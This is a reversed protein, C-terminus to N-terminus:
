KAAYNLSGVIQYFIKTSEDIGEKPPYFSGGIGWQKNGATFYIAISRDLVWFQPEADPRERGYVFQYGAFKQSGVTFPPGTKPIQAQPHIDGLHISVGGPIVTTNRPLSDRWNIININVKQLQANPDYEEFVLWSAPYSFSFGSKGTFTIWKTVLSPIPTWVPTPVIPTPTWTPDLKPTPLPTLPVPRLPIPTATILYSLTATHVPPNPPVSTALTSPSAAQQSAQRFLAFSIFAAILVVIAALIPTRKLSNLM